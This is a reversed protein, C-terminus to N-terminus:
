DELLLIHPQAAPGPGFVFADRKGNNDDSVLNDSTSVFTVCTGNGSIGTWFSAQNGQTGDSAVSVRATHGSVRDHVFVDGRNNTDGSVLTSAYSVFAVVRGDGSIFADTNSGSVQAGSSDLSVRTTQGTQRDHVFVDDYGNTDGSVLNSAASVFAVYRGDDSISPEESDGNAQTGSSDVSVLTTQGTQLDHVFIDDRGNIDGTVLNTAQSEFVVYRGNGSIRPDDSDGNAEMGSSDVSVRTTAGTQRDHVYIDWAANNDNAALTTARSSFAVMRGDGSITADDNEQDSEAGSSSVSVRTTAGTQRDHVFIDWYINTDDDVLNSARSEFAVYRGDASLAPDYSANNAEGGLSDLSVRTTEGNQRDHVFVDAYTNTDGSVLNDAASYFAVYRGTSSLFPGSADGNGQVGASDVSVITTRALAVSPSFVLLAALLIAPLFASGFWGYVGNMRDMGTEGATKQAIIM